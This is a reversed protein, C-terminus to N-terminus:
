RAVPSQGTWIVVMHSEGGGYLSANVGPPVPPSWLVGKASTPCVPGAMLSLPRCAEGLHSFGTTALSYFSAIAPRSKGKIDM